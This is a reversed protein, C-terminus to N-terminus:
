NTYKDLESIRGKAKNLRSIFKEIVTKIEIVTNKKGLREMKKKKRITERERSFNRMQCHTNDLKEVPAKSMNKMTIKFERDSLVLKQTMYSNPETSQKTEQCQPNKRKSKKYVM